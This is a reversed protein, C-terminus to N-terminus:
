WDLFCVFLCFLLETQEYAGMKRWQGAFRNRAHEKHQVIIVFSLKSEDARWVQGFQYYPLFLYRHSIQRCSYFRHAFETCSWGGTLFLMFSLLILGHWLLLMLVVFICVGVQFAKTLDLEKCKVLTQYLITINEGDETQPRQLLFKRASVRLARVKEGFGRFTFTNTTKHRHPKEKM